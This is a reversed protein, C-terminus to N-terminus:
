AARLSILRMNESDVIQLARNHGACAGGSGGLATLCRGSTSLLRHGPCLASSRTNAMSMSVQRWHPPFSRTIALMSSGATM